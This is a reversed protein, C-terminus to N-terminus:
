RGYKRDFAWVDEFGMLAHMDALEYLPQEMGVSSGHRHLHDFAAELAKAATLLGVAPFIAISYGIEQLRGASLM